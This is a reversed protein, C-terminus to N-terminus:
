TPPGTAATANSAPAIEESGNRVKVKDILAHSDNALRDVAATNLPVHGMGQSDLYERVHALILAMQDVNHRVSELTAADSRSLM